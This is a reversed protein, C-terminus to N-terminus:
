FELRPLKEIIDVSKVSVTILSLILDLIYRPKKHEQCWLNPDNTINSDSNTSVQYRDIIWDLPSRGNVTYEYAKEQKRCLSM